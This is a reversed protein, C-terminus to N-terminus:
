VVSKRDLVSPLSTGQVRTLGRVQHQDVRLPPCRHVPVIGGGDAVVVRVVAPIEGVRHFHGQPVAPDGVLASAARSRPVTHGTLLNGVSRSPFWEDKLLDPAERSSREDPTSVELRRDPPDPQQWVRHHVDVPGPGPHALLVNGM